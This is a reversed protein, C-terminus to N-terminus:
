RGVPKETCAVRAYPFRVTHLQGGHQGEISAHLSDGAIRYRIRQPFDHAPNAFVVSTDDMREAPFETGADGKPHARFIVSDGRVFIRMFEWEVVSDRGAIRRTARSMGLLVEGSPAMWQEDITHRPTTIRWCGTLWRLRAPSEPARSSAGVVVLLLVALVAVRVFRM